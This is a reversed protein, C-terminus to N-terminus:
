KLGTKSMFNQVFQNLDIGNQQAIQQALTQPSQTRMMQLVQAVQPNHKSLNRLLPMPDKGQKAVNLIDSMNLENNKYM